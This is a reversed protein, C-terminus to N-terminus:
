LKMLVFNVIAYSIITVVLGIIAYLVTNKAGSIATQDGQSTAYRIGGLIIMIVAITGALFLLINTIDGITEMLRPQDGTCNAGGTGQAGRCLAQQPTEALAIPAVSLVAVGIVMASVALKKFTSLIHKM